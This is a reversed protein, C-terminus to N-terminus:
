SPLIYPLVIIMVIFSIVLIALFVIAFWRCCDDLDWIVPVWIICCCRTQQQHVCSTDEQRHDERPTEPPTEPPLQGLELDPYPPPQDKVTQGNSSMKSLMSIPTPVTPYLLSTKLLQLLHIISTSLSQQSHCHISLALTLLSCITTM